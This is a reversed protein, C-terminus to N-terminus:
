SGWMKASVSVIDEEHPTIEQVPAAIARNPAVM